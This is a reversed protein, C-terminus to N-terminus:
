QIMMHNDTKKERVSIVNEPIVNAVNMVKQM